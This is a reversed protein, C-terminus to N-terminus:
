LKQVQYFTLEVPTSRGFITVSVKLTSRDVNVDEIKGTFNAFPGETIRVLEGLEFVEKPKPKEKTVEVHHLIQKVEDDTLPAPHKGGGVFGTVKPTHRVLYWAEEPIKPKGDPGAITEIEVLIYGPFFKREVEKKKGAKLEIVTEKPVKIEGFYDGLNRADIRQELTQKVRDEFGSYTHVIYWKLNKSM